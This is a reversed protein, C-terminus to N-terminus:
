IASPQPDLTVSWLETDARDMLRVSMQQTVGDIDVLGFFQLGASPPLNVGQGEAPAKVFKVEPGFTGDLANPGFTGAHLPGSVFEWFPEFDQFQAKNPDYYHAATYHVDATFWVTNRVGATKIFRLLDAIELERGKAPGGDGNSVAEAGAQDKWNDWVILGIPMDSAIVKWTANSSALERKLWALQDAGLIRSQDTIEDEMSAGNPGRYSRLDLFFVDLMPGYSIKRYVRGPETPTVRLPTMEHFARAARSQLVHVSKETYRDDSILDKADSWNNVVEHDDWQFFTPCVANMARVHDDMMNYKWQGRFEDLTEAVKRKEDILTSNKWILQGDKEVEDQMPGDAYITDGSHIFFDPKHQAMTAYTRMGDADIGWGQGATDGSWAFRVNRRSTPATRFQGTIPESKVNIDSLDAAVFRYFIDQDSPLGDVLRKVTFDSNPIADIPTLQRADAFSETTAVEMMVRSPRDTRTWIMGSATDVDGSQVGHTFIPRSAARSLAPMALSAACATSGALFARRNPRLFKTM